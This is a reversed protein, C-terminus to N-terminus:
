RACRFGDSYGYKDDPNVRYRYSARLGFSNVNWSGGRQVKFDGTTPGPPNSSPTPDLYYSGDYWDNVWEMVNGAMDLAGYPSAGAAYSGVASTDGVCNSLTTYDWFNALACTPSAKGWPYARITPGRAAKEWEAESPLRKGAWSCYAHAQNWDVYIVPYNAYAPNGYYSSHTHSSTKGPETCSGVAVCDSYAANTVETKDIEYADLYVL